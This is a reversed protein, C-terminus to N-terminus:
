EVQYGATAYLRRFVDAVFCVQVECYELSPQIRELKDISLSPVGQVSNKLAVDRQMGAVIGGNHVICNRVLTLVDLQALEESTLSPLAFTNFFTQCREVVDGKFQGLATPLGRDRRLLEAFRRFQYEMQSYALIVVSQLLLPRFVLGYQDEIEAFDMAVDDRGDDGAFREVVWRKDNEAAERLQDAVTRLYDKLEEFALQTAEFPYTRAIIM